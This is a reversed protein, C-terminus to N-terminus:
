AKKVTLMRLVGETINAVREFELPFSPDATYDIVFYYGESQYDIDYALRRKGWEDVNTVTGNAEVLAKFKEVLAQTKEEGEAVTFVLMTEYNNM